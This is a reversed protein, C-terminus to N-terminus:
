LYFIYFMDFSIKTRFGQDNRLLSSPGPTGLPDFINKKVHDYPMDFHSPHHTSCFALLIKVRPDFQHGQTLDFPWIDEIIFRIEFIKLVLSQTHEWLYFKYFMYFPIKMTDGPDYGLPSVKPHQPYFSQAHPNAIVGKRCSTRTLAAYDTVKSIKM